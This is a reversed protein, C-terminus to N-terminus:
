VISISHTPIAITEFYSIVSWGSKRNTPTQNYNKHHYTDHFGPQLIMIAQYTVLASYDRVINFSSFLLVSHHVLESGLVLVSPAFICCVLIAM